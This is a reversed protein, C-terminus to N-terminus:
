EAKSVADFTARTTANPPTPEFARGLRPEGHPRTARRSAHRDHDTWRIVHEYEHVSLFEGGEYLLGKM